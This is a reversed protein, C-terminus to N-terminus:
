FKFRQRIFKIDRHDVIYIIVYILRYTINPTPVQYWLRQLIELIRLQSSFKSEPVLIPTVILNIWETQLSITFTSYTTKFLIYGSIFDRSMFSPCLRYTSILKLDYLSLWYNNITLFSVFTDNDFFKNTPLFKEYDKVERIM